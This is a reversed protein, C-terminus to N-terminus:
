TVYMAYKMKKEREREKERGREREGEKKVEIRIGPLLERACGTPLLCCATRVQM